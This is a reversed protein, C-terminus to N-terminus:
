QHLNAAAFWSKGLIYQVPDNHSLRQAIETLHHLQHVNLPEEKKTHRELRSLGTLHELVMNAINGAEPGDYVTQLQQRLWQDADNLKM